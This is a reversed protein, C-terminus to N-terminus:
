KNNDKVSGEIIKIEDENLNYLKYVLEDIEREWESTDANKNEKKASLIKDVLDEIQQVIPKNSSSLPPIPLNELFAKKYRYGEEGLGGGAYWKKFFYSVPNSNLLGCIYKISNGTMLFSTAEVYFKETDYYFQPKRVIESYVVKEKEFVPYYTAACRQLAYWEYRIGTEEKNRKSLLEKFQLLHQYVAPYQKQFEKEAEKSAGQITLDEHLPFHWPIFIVWLGAWEYYYRKIDRGRLIPKIIAETRKREEETKCNALIENRKETNIIFADNLGTKIGYYIKVDWNKLPIGISEIKEKLKQEATNGIFWADSKLNTLVVSKEKVLKHLDVEELKYKSLDLAILNNENNNKQIILINSDVTANKFVGPGLDILLKPNHSLFFKRLKEGYGARMWKNSTIFALIGGQKLLMIGEEYFLCYIDGTREFTEFNQNKYLDAYKLKDNFAKQLQIYPPNGVVIDFGSKSSFVESFYVKFSFQNHGTTIDNILKSIKEKLKEKESPNTESFFQIKLKELEVLSEENHLIKNLSLLSNGCVIKYDLNPLPKISYFDDEDVILSLWFRLKCIEVAGPDIDVGYLSNEICHRKFNYHTRNEDNIFLSLFERLRVIEIMMGVPFAGSGVAPDCVKVDSLLKDIQHANNKISDPILNIYKYKTYPKDAKKLSEKVRDFISETHYVFKEIDELPITKNM